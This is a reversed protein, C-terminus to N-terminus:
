ALPWQIRRAMHAVLTRHSNARACLHDVIRRNEGVCPGTCAWGNGWSLDLSGGRQVAANNWSVVGSLGLSGDRWHEQAHEDIQYYITNM